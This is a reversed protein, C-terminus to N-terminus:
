SKPINSPDYFPLEFLNQSGPEVRTCKKVLARPTRKETIDVCEEIIYVSLLVLRRETIYISLLNVCEKTMYFSLLILHRETISISEITSGEQTIFGDRDIGFLM